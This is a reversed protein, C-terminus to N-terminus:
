LTKWLLRGINLNTGGANYVAQFKSETQCAMVGMSLQTMPHMGKPFSRMLPEVHAPLQVLILEETLGKTQEATPVRDSFGCCRKQCPSM